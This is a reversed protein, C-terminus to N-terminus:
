KNLLASCLEDLIIFLARYSYKEVCKQRGADGMTKLKAPNRMLHLVAKALESPCDPPVTIGADGLIVPIDSVASAIVAKRMAMADFIKAPLQGRCCALDKQPILSVDICNVVLPLDKKSFTTIFDTRARYKDFMSSQKETESLGAALFRVPGSVAKIDDSTESAPIIIELAELITDIGKHNRPTGIFGLYFADAQLGYKGRCEQKDPVASPNMVDTNCAHEVLTGSFRDKLFSNSVLKIFGLNRTKLDYLWSLFLGEPNRLKFVIERFIKKPTVPFNWGLEWDDIDLIVPKKLKRDVLQAADIIWPWVKCAIVIDGEALAALRQVARRYESSLINPAPKLVGKVPWKNIQACPPWLTGKHFGVFEIDWKQSLMDALLYARGFANSSLSSILFTILGRKKSIM